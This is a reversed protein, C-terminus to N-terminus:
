NNIEKKEEFHSQGSFYGLIFNTKNFDSNNVLKLLNKLDNLENNNIFSKNRILREYLSIYYKHVDEISFIIRSINGTFHKIYNKLNERDDRWHCEFKGLSFGLKYSPNEELESVFNKNEMTKLFKLNNFLINWKSKFENLEINDIRAVHECQNIICKYIYDPITYIEQYLNIITNIILKNHFGSKIKENIDKYLENLIYNFSLKNNKKIPNYINNFREKIKLLKSYRISNLYLIIDNSHGSNYIFFLDFCLLSPFFTITEDDLEKRKKKANIINEINNCLLDFNFINKINMFNEVDKITLNECNPLLIVKYENNIIHISNNYINYGYYLSLFEEKNFFPISEEPM